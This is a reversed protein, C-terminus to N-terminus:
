SQPHVQLEEGRELDTETVSSTNPSFSGSKRDRSLIRKLSLIRSGPSCSSSSSSSSATEEDVQCSSCLGSSSGIEPDREVRNESVSIAENPSEPVVAARCLPCSSHSLFWMDICDIHFSHNCKPLLRGKENEEFESLCVACELPTQHTKSSFVFTPLSALVSADLGCATTPNSPRHNHPLLILLRSRHRRLRRLNQRRHRLRICRAYLHLSLIMLVVSILIVIAMLMIRGSMAYSKADPTYPEEEPRYDGHGDRGM